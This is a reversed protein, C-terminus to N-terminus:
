DTVSTTVTFRPLPPAPVAYTKMLEDGTSPALEAAGDALWATWTAQVDYWGLGGRGDGEGEAELLGEGDV